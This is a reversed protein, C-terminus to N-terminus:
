LDISSTRLRYPNLLYLVELGTIYVVLGELGAGPGTAMASPRVGISTNRPSTPQCLDITFSHYRPPQQIQLKLVTGLTINPLCYRPHHNWIHTINMGFIPSSEWKSSYKESPNTPEVVLWINLTHNKVLNSRAEGIDWKMQTMFTLPRQKKSGRFQFM